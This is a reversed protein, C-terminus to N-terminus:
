GTIGAEAAEGSLLGPMDDLERLARLVAERDVVGAVFSASFDIGGAVGCAFVALNDAGCPYSMTLYRIASTDKWPIHEVGPNRMMYNFTMTTAGGRAPRGGGRGLGVAAGGLALAPVARASDVADRIGAGVAVPDDMSAPIYVSKVLNGPRLAQKAPLYRRLDILTYCGAPDLMVGNRTLARHSASAVLASISVGPYHEKRWRQLRAVAEPGVRYAVADTGSGVRHPAPVALSAPVPKSPSRFHRWWQRHHTRIQSGVLRAAVSMGSDPRLYRLGHVDGLALLVGFSSVVVADGLVHSVYCTLSDPGVLVKYASREGPGPAHRHIYAYPDDSDIPGTSVLVRDLHEARAGADVPIWRRGDASLVCNVPNTPDSEMFDLLDARLEAIDPRDIPSMSLVSWYGAWARDIWSARSSASEHLGTIM